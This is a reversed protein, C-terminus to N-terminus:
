RRSHEIVLTEHTVSLQNSNIRKKALQTLSSSSAPADAGFGNVPSNSRVSNATAARARPAHRMSENNVVSVSRGSSKFHSRRQTARM